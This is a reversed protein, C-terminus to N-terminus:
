KFHREDGHIKMNFGFDFTRLLDIGSVRFTASRIVTFYYM